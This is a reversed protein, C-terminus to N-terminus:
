RKIGIAAYNPAAYLLRNLNDINKNLISATEDAGPLTQLQEEELPASYQIEVDEFGSTEMLFKLTQPHIPKQHTLDLFYIQVLGFVSAPNLTELVLHGGPALKFYALEIMRQLYQPPLHEIVQSSFIGGLSNDQCQNLSELVDGKQCDFGKDRCIEIMQENLDIGQADIGNERLLELFEGRGCGLDLVKGAKDFYPLFQAQQKKVEEENGRYRNEFGAYRWDELPQLIEKVQAQSPLKKEELISLLQGLKEKLLIFKKMLLNVDEYAATLKDVRWEMSKFIMGVHNSGLADWEKDKTDMLAVSSEILDAFSSFLERTKDLNQELVKQFETFILSVHNQFPEESPVKKFM